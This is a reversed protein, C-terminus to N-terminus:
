VTLRGTVVLWRLFELRRVQASIQQKERELYTSRFQSLREIQTQTLGADLLCEHRKEIEESNMM